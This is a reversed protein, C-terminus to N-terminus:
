IDVFAHIKSDCKHKTLDLYTRPQVKLLATGCQVISPRCISHQVTGMWRGWELSFGYCIYVLLWTGKPNHLPAYCIKHGQQHWLIVAETGLSHTFLLM